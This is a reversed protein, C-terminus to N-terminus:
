VNEPNDGGVDIKDSDSSTVRILDDNCFSKFVRM